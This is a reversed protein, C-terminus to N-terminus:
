SSGSSSGPARSPIEEISIWRPEGRRWVVRERNAFRIEDPDGPLFRFSFEYPMGGDTYRVSVLSGEVEPDRSIEVEKVPHATFDFLGTGTYFIVAERRLEFARDEYLPDSTTWYGVMEEPVAAPGEDGGCAAGAVAAAAALVVAPAASRARAALSPRSRAPRAPGLGRM